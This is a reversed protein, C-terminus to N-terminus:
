IKKRNQHFFFVITIWLISLPKISPSFITKHGATVQVIFRKINKGKLIEPQV